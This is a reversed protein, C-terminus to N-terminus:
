QCQAQISQQCCQDLISHVGSFDSVLKTEVREPLASPVNLGGAGSSTITQIFTKLYTNQWKLVEFMGLM